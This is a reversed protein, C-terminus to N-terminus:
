PKIADIILSTYTPTGNKNRPDHYISRIVMGDNIEWQQVNFKGNEDWYELIKTNFGSKKLLRTLSRYDYLLKHDGAGIGIGGPRVNDIYSKDPHLGDPVAIRLRGGPILFNFCNTAAIYGDSLSLHEWVHEALFTVRSGEKWYKLFSSSDLLNLQEYNLSVWGDYNTEGAGVVIKKAGKIKREFFYNKIKIRITM